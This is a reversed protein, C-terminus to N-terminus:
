VWYKIMAHLEMRLDFLIDLQTFTGVTAYNRRSCVNTDTLLVLKQRMHHYNAYRFSQETIVSDVNFSINEREREKWEKCM